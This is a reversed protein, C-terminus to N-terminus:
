CENAIFVPLRGRVFANWSEFVVMSLVTKLRNANAWKVEWWGDLGHEVGLKLILGISANIIWGLGRM